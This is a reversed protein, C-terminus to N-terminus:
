ITVAINACTLHPMQLAWYEELTLQNGRMILDQWIQDSSLIIGSQLREHLISILKSGRSGKQAKVSPLKQLQNHNVQAV